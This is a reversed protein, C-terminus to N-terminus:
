GHESDLTSKPKNAYLFHEVCLIAVVLAAQITM